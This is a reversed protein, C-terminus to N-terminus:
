IIQTVLACTGATVHFITVGLLNNHRLYFAGFVLGSVFTTFVVDLGFHIHFLGFLFSAFIVSMSKHQYRFFRQISSQLIGRFAFEQIYSHLFYLPITSIYSFNFPKDLMLDFYRLGTVLSVLFVTFIFSVAFGEYTSKKWNKWTIGLSSLPIKMVRVLIITPILAILLYGWGFLDSYIDFSPFYTNLSYNVIMGIALLGVSYIFFHGFENQLRIIDLERELSRVHEINTQRLKDTSALTINNSLRSLLMLNNHLRVTDLVFADGDETVRASASRPAGDLLTLEGVEQGASLTAIVQETGSSDPKCVEITGNRIFYVHTSQDNERFLYEGEKLIRKELTQSLTKLETESLGQLLSFQQLEVLYDNMTTTPKETEPRDARIKRTNALTMNSLLRSLLMLTPPLRQLNMVFLSTQEVVRASASRPSGDVVGFEGLTDGVTLLALVQESKGEPINRIVEIKGSRIFYVELSTDGEYFLYENVDLTREDFAEALIQLENDSFGQFLTFQQLENKKNMFETVHM